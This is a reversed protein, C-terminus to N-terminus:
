SHHQSSRFCGQNPEDARIPEEPKWRWLDDRRLPCFHPPTSPQPWFTIHRETRESGSLRYSYRHSLCRKESQTHPESEKSHSNQSGSNEFIALTLPFCVLHFRSPLRSRLQSAAKRISSGCCKELPQDARLNSLNIRICTWVCVLVSLLSSCVSLFHRLCAKM